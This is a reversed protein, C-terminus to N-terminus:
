RSTLRLSQRAAPLVLEFVAGGSSGNRVSLSGGHAIAAAKAMSLGLGSGMPGHPPMRHWFRDFVHPLDEAPIGPGTDAVAVTCRTDSARCSVTVVAGDATFHLANEILADVAMAIWDPDLMIVGTPEIEIRWDRDFAVSWNDTLERVLEGLYVPQKNLDTRADLRAVALLRNSLMSMRELQRLAVDLDSAMEVDLERAAVLELHGRAITVPTRIAHSADRFFERERDVAALQRATMQEVQEVASMRRRAHWVMVLLVAPMLPIEALEARALEGESAHAIMLWGGLFTIVVTATVTPIVPWIRFGYAMAVVLFMLHFPASEHGPFALMLAIMAVSLVGVVVDVLISVQRRSWARSRATLVKPV